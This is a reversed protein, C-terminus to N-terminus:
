KPGKPTRQTCIAQCLFQTLFNNQISCKYFTYDGEYLIAMGSKSAYMKKFRLVTYNQPGDGPKLFWLVYIYNYTIYLISYWPIVQIRNM